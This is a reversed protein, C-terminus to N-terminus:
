GSSRGFSRPLLCAMSRTRRCLACRVVYLILDKHSASPRRSVMDAFVNDIEPKKERRKREAEAEMKKRKVRLADFLDKSLLQRLEHEPRQMWPVKKSAAPATPGENVDDDSLAVDPEEVASQM